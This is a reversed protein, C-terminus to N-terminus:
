RVNHYSWFHYATKGWSFDGMILRVMARWTELYQRMVPHDLLQHFLQNYRGAHSESDLFEQITALDTNAGLVHPNKKLCNLFFYMDKHKLPDQYALFSSVPLGKLALEDSLGLLENPKM